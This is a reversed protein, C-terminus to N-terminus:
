RRLSGLIYPRTEEESTDCYINSTTESLTFKKLKLSTSTSQKLQQLEDDSAQAEAIEQMDLSTPMVVTDVRSLADTVINEAGSVHRVDITFESIFLLQRTQRPLMQDSKRKFAFVLLKHDTIVHFNQGELM